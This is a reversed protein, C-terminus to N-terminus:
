ILFKLFKRLSQLILDPIEFLTKWIKSLFKRIRTFNPQNEILLKSFKTLDTIKSKFQWFSTLNEDLVKFLKQFSENFTLKLIQLIQKFILITTNKTQELNECIKQRNWQFRENGSIELKDRSSNHAGM